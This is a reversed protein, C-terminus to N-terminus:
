HQQQSYTARKEGDYFFAALGGWAESWCQKPVLGARRFANNLTNEKPVSAFMGEIRARFEDTKGQVIQFGNWGLFSNDESASFDHATIIGDVVALQLQRLLCEHQSKIHTRTCMQIQERFAEDHEWVRKEQWERRMNQVVTGWHKQGERATMQMEPRNKVHAGRPQQNRRRRKKIPAVIPPPTPPLVPQLRRASSQRKPRSVPVGPHSAPDDPRYVSSLVNFNPVAPPFRLSQAIQQLAAPTNYKANQNLKHEEAEQEQEDDKEETKIPEENAHQVAAGVHLDAFHSSSENGEADDDDDNGSLMADLGSAERSMLTDLGSSTWALMPPAGSDSFGSSSLTMTLAQGAEDQHMATSSDEAMDSNADNAQQPHLASSPSNLPQWSAGGHAMTQSWFESMAASSNIMCQALSIASQDTSLPSNIFSPERVM